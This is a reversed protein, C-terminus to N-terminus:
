TLTPRQRCIICLPPICIRANVMSSRFVHVHFYFLTDIGTLLLSTFHHLIIKVQILENKTIDETNPDTFSLTQSLVQCNNKALEIDGPIDEERPLSREQPARHTRSSRAHTGVPDATLRDYIRLLDDMSSDQRYQSAWSQLADIMAAHVRTDSVKDNVILEPLLKYGGCGHENNKKKSVKNFALRNLDEIFSKAILQDIKDYNPVFM